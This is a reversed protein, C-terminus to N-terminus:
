RETGSLMRLAALALVGVLVASSAVAAIAAGIAGTLPLLIILLLAYIAAGALRARLVIAAGGHANHWPELVFGSLEIAAAVALIALFPQAFTFQPGAIVRLILGGAGVCLGVVVAAFILSILASRVLLRRLLERDNSAVLHALEPYIVRALQESPKTTATAIRDALRFGGATAPGAVSGVALTGAQMSIYRMSSSLSTRWMFNWLGHNENRAARFSRRGLALRGRYVVLAAVWTAVLQLVAGLAWGALFASVGGGALWAIIAVLSRFLPAFGETYALLDFRNFLRLIGTPTGGSAVILVAAFVAAERQVEAPWNILPGVLFAAAIAIAAGGIASAWDLTATFGLLRSLEIQRNEALHLAGFRIVGKWSEFHSINSFLQGYTLAIVFLGFRAPGLARAAIALFLLGFLGALGQGGLLWGVNRWLRSFLAHHGEPVRDDVPM